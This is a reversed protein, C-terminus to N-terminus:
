APRFAIGRAELFTAFGQSVILTLGTQAAGAFVPPGEVIMEMDGTQRTYDAHAANIQHRQDLGVQITPM